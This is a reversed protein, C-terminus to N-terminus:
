DLSIVERTKKSPPGMDVNQKRRNRSPELASGHELTAQFIKRLMRLEQKKSNYLDIEKRHAARTKTVTVYAHKGIGAPSATAAYGTGSGYGGDFYKSAWNRAHAIGNFNHITMSQSEGRLFSNVLRSQSGPFEANPQSWSFVPRGDKTDARLKTARTNAMEIVLPHKIAPEGLTILHKLTSPLVSTYVKVANCFTQFKEGGIEFSIKAMSGVNTSKMLKPINDKTLAGLVINEKVSHVFTPPVTAHISKLFEFALSLPITGYGGSPQVASSTCKVLELIETGIQASKTTCIGALMKAFATDPIRDCSKLASCLLHDDNSSFIGKLMAFNLVIKKEELQTVIHKCISMKDPHPATELYSLMFSMGASKMINVNMSRPWFVAAGRYYWYELTPGANGTYSEYEKHSPDESFIEDEDEDTLLSEEMDFDLRFDSLQKDDPGIWHNTDVETYDVEDMVQDEADSETDDDHFRRRDGYHDHCPSGTEHKSMLMLCVVFLPNGHADRAGQLFDVVEKDRGKLNTFHLNKKTYDHELLYGHTQQPFLNNWYSALKRLQQIQATLACASPLSQSLALEDNNRRMVLNYALCLRWGSEIPLLEHECDAYFASAFFGEASKASFDLTKMEGAHEIVLAGGSFKSPLQIILTGFMGPEKETDRHKKFHGGPEYLLLKYLNARVNIQQEVTMGLSATCDSVIRRLAVQWQWLDCFKVKTADVQWVSRVSEDYVTDMGKGFPAKEAFSCLRKAQYKMLPFALQENEEMGDISIRPSFRPINPTVDRGVYFDGKKDIDDLIGKLEERWQDADLEEEEEEEEEQSGEEGDDLGEIILVEDESSNPQEEKEEEKVDEHIAPEIAVPVTQASNLQHQCESDQENKPGRQKSKVETASDVISETSSPLDSDEANEVDEAVPQTSANFQQSASSEHKSGSPENKGNVEADADGAPKDCSDTRTSPQNHLRVSEGNNGNKNENSSAGVSQEEQKPEKEMEPNNNMAENNGGQLEPLKVNIHEGEM